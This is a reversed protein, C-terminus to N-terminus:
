SAVSQREDLSEFATASYLSAMMERRPPVPAHAPVRAALKLMLSRAAPSIRTDSRRCDIEAPNALRRSRRYARDVVRRPFEALAITLTARAVRM